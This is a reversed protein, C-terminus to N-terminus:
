SFAMEHMFQKMTVDRAQGLRSLFYSQWLSGAGSGSQPVTRPRAVEMGLGGFEWVAGGQPVASIVSSM